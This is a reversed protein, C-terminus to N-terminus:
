KKCEYYERMQVDAEECSQCGLPLHVSCHHSNTCASTTRAALATRTACFRGAHRPSSAACAFSVVASEPARPPHALILGYNVCNGNMVFLKVM